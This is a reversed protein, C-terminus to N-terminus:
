AVDDLLGRAEHRLWSLVRSKALYVVNVSVNNKQAVAAAHQGDLVVQQFLNCTDAPFHKRALELLRNAVHANHEEDFLGSLASASDELQALQGEDALMQKKAFHDHICNRLVKKLWARFAGPNQNHVFIPLKEVLRKLVNQIVDDVDADAPKALRRCWHRLFPGYLHVLREWSTADHPDRALRELLSHPTDLM